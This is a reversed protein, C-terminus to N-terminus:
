VTGVPVPRVAAKAGRVVARSLSFVLTRGALRGQDNASNEGRYQVNIELEFFQNHWRSGDPRAHSLRRAAERVRLTEASPDARAASEQRNQRIVGLPLSGESLARASSAQALLVILLAIVALLLQLARQLARLATKTTTTTSTNAM